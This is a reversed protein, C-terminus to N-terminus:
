PGGFMKALEIDEETLRELPALQERLWQRAWKDETTSETTEPVTGSSTQASDNPLSGTPKQTPTKGDASPVASEAAWSLFM